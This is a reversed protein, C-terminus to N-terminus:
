EGAGNEDSSASAIAPGGCPDGELGRGVARSAGFGWPEEAPPRCEPPRPPKDQAPRTRTDRRLIM